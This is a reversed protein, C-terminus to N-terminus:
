LVAAIAGPSAPRSQAADSEVNPLVIGADPRTSRSVALVTLDDTVSAGVAFRDIDAMISDVLETAGSRPHRLMVAELRGLGYSDGTGCRAESAGDTFLLLRDGDELAV